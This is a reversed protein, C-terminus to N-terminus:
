RRRPWPRRQRLQDVRELMDATDDDSTGVGRLLEEVRERGLADDCRSLGLSTQLQGRIVGISLFSALSQALKPVAQQHAGKKLLILGVNAMETAVGVRFGTKRAGELAEETFKLARDLDGKDNYVGGIGGLEIAFGLNYGAKRAREAAEGYYELAKDLDGKDRRVSAINGLGSVLGREDGTRRSIALADEHSKLADDLEGRERQVNGINGLYLAEAPQSGSAKAIALARKLLKLASGLEAHDHRVVGINNFAMARGLENGDQSALRATDEFEGLAEDLKGQYYHCVGLQNLVPVLQAPEANARARHLHEVANDWSCTAMATLALEFPRWVAGSSEPLGGAYEAMRDLDRRVVDLRTKVRRSRLWRPMRKRRRLAVVGLVAAVAVIVGIVLLAAPDISQISIGGM